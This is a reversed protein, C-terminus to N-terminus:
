HHATASAEMAVGSGRQSQMFALDQKRSLKKRFVVEGSATSGHVQSAQKALDVGIISVKKM